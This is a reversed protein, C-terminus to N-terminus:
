LNEPLGALGDRIASELGTGRGADSATNKLAWGKATESPELPRTSRAFPMVRMVNRGKASQMANLYTSEKKLDEASISASTDALVIVATKTEFTKLVPESIALLVATFSLAKLALALKRDSRKWEWVAWILPILALLLMWAREFTM